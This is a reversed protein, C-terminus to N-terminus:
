ERMFKTNVGNIGNQKYEDNRQLGIYLSFNFGTVFGVETTVAESGETHALGQLMTVKQKFLDLLTSHAPPASPDVSSTLTKLDKPHHLNQSQPRGSWKM